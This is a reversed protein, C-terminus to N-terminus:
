CQRNQGQAYRDGYSYDRAYGPGLGSNNCSGPNYYGPETNPGGGNPASCGGLVGALLLLSLITAPTKM